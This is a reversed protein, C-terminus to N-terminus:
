GRACVKIVSALYPLKSLDEFALQKESASQAKKGVPVSADRLESIIREEVEPHQSVYFRFLL